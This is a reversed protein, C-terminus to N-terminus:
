PGTNQLAEHKPSVRVFGVHNCHRDSLWGLGCFSPSCKKWSTEVIEPTVLADIINYVVYYLMYQIYIYIYNYIM